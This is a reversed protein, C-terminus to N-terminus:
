TKNHCYDIYIDLFQNYKGMSSIDYDWNMISKFSHKKGNKSTYIFDGLLEQIIPTAEIHEIFKKLTVTAYDMHSRTYKMSSRYLSNSIQSNNHKAYEFVAKNQNHSMWKNIEVQKLAEEKTTKKHIDYLILPRYINYNKECSLFNIDRKAYKSKLQNMRLLQNDGYVITDNYFLQKPVTKRNNLSFTQAEDYIKNICSSGIYAIDGSDKHVIKFVKKISCKCICHKTEYGTEQYNYWKTADSVINIFYKHKGCLCDGPKHSCLGSYIIDADYIMVM